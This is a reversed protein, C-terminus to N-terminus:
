DSLRVLANPQWERFPMNANAEFRKKRKRGL